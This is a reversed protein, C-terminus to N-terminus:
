KFYPIGANIPNSRRRAKIKMGLFLGGSVGVTVGEDVSAADGVAETVGSGKVAVDVSVGVSVTVGEMVGVLGVEVGEAVLCVKSVTFNHMLTPKSTRLM